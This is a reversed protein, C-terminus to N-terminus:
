NASKMVDTKGTKVYSNPDALKREVFNLFSAISLTLTLYIISTILYTEFYM